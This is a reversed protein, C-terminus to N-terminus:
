SGLYLKKLVLRNPIHFGRQTQVKEKRQVEQQINENLYLKVTNTKEQTEIDKLQKNLELALIDISNQYSQILEEEEEESQNDSRNEMTERHSLNITTLRQNFQQIVQARMSPYDINRIASLAENSPNEQTKRYTFSDRKPRKSFAQRLCRLLM